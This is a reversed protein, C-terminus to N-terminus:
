QEAVQLQMLTWSGGFGVTAEVPIEELLKAVGATAQSFHQVGFRNKKLAEMTKAVQTETQTTM